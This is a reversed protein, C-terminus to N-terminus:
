SPHAPQARRREDQTWPEADTGSRALHHHSRAPGGPLAPLWQARPPPSHSGADAAVIQAPASRGLPSDSLLCSVARGPASELAAGRPADARAAPPHPQRARVARRDRRRPEVRPTAVRRATPGGARAWGVRRARHTGEDDIMGDTRRPQTRAGGRAGRPPCPTRGGAAPASATRPGRDADPEGPGARGPASGVRLGAALGGSATVRNAPM